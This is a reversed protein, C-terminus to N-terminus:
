LGTDETHITSFSRCHRAVIAIFVTSGPCNSLDPGCLRRTCTKTLTEFEADRLVWLAITSHSIMPERDM